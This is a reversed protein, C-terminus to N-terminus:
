VVHNTFGMVSSYKQAIADKMETRVQTYLDEKAASIWSADHMHSSRNCTFACSVLLVAMSTLHVGVIPIVSSAGKYLYCTIALKVHHNSDAVQTSM